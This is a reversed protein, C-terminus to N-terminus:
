NLEAINNISRAAWVPPSAAAAYERSNLASDRNKPPKPPPAGGLSEISVPLMPIQGRPRLRRSRASPKM